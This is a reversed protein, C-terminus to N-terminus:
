SRVGVDRAWARARASGTDADPHEHIRRAFEPGLGPISQFLQEPAVAGRRRELQAWRGTRVMQAIAQALVPGIGPLADLGEIGERELLAAVDEDLGAVTEAARRYAGVRFPNAQQQELLEAAERLRAAVQQNLRGGARIRSQDAAEVTM